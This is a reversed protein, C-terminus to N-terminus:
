VSGLDAYRRIDNLEAKASYPVLGEPDPWGYGILMIVKEHQDLKLLGAM